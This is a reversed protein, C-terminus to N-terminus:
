GVAEQRYDKWFRPPAIRNIGVRRGVSKKGCIECTYIWTIQGGSWVLREPGLRNPQHRHFPQRHFIESM